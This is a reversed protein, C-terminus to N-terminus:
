IEFHALVRGAGATQIGRYMHYAVSHEIPKHSIIGEVVCIVVEGLNWWSTM